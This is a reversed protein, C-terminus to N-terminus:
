EFTNEDRKKDMLQITLDDLYSHVPIQMNLQFIPNM